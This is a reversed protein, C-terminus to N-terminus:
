MTKLRRIIDDYQQIVQQQRENIAQINQQAELVNKKNDTISKQLMAPVPKSQREYTAAQAIDKSLMRQLGALQTQLYSKRSAMDALMQNRKAVAQTASGYTRRLNMDAQRKAAEADRKAKQRAYSETSYPPVRKIVQMNRDLAEYGYKLHQDTITSSLSPQGSGNYYRYWRIIPQPNNAGSSYSSYDYADAFVPTAYFSTMCALMSNIVAVRVSAMNTKLLSSANCFSQSM